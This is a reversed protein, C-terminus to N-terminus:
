RAIFVETEGEADASGEAREINALEGIIVQLTMCTHCTCGPTTRANIVQAVTKMEMNM